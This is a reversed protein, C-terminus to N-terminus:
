ADQSILGQSVPDDWVCKSHEGAFILGFMNNQDEQRAMKALHLTTLYYITM